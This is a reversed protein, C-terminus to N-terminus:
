DYDIWDIPDFQEYFFYCKAEFRSWGYFRMLYEIRDIAEGPFRNNSTELM